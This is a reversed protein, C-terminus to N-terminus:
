FSGCRSAGPKELPSDAASHAPTLRSRRRRVQPSHFRHPLQLVLILQLICLMEPALLFFFFSLGVSLLTLLIKDLSLALSIRLACASAAM